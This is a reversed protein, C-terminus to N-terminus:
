GAGARRRQKSSILAITEDHHAALRRVPALTDEGTTHPRGEQDGARGTRHHGRGALYNM